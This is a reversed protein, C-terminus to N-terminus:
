KSLDEVASLIKGSPIDKCAFDKRSCYDLGAISCPWCKLNEPEISISNNNLARFGANPSTGMWLIVSPVNYTAAIHQNASDCVIAGKAMQWMEKESFRMDSALSLNPHSYNWNQLEDETGLIIISRGESLLKKVVIIAKDLSWSKTKKSSFPCIIWINKKVELLNEPSPKLSFIPSAYKVGFSEMVLSIEEQVNPLSKIKKRLFLKRLNRKKSFRKVKYGMLYAVSYFVVTRLHSHADFVFNPSNSRFWGWFFVVQSLWSRYDGSVDLDVVRIGSVRPLNAAIDPRTFLTFSVSSDQFTADELVSFLMFVDGLASFRAVAIHKRDTMKM